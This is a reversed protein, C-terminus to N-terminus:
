RRRRRQKGAFNGNYSVWFRGTSDAKGILRLAETIHQQSEDRAQLWGTLSYKGKGDFKIFDTAM